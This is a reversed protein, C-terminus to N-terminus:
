AFNRQIWCYATTRGILWPLRGWSCSDHVLWFAGGCMHFCSPCVPSFISPMGSDIWCAVSFFRFDTMISVLAFSSFLSTLFRPRKIFIHCSFSTIWFIIRNPFCSIFLNYPIICTWSFLNPINALPCFHIILSYCLLQLWWLCTKTRIFDM